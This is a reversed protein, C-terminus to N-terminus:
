ATKVLPGFSVIAGDAETAHVFVGVHTPTMTKSIDAEGFAHYSVGDPSFLAQFTNSASYILKIYLPWLPAMPIMVDDLVWPATNMNTLTGHRGVLVTNTVNTGTEGAQISAGVCNSAAITGDTFIIGARVSVQAATHGLIGYIPVTWAHGTSFSQAILLCNADEATMGAAVVSVLNNDETWTTTGTIDVETFSAKDNGDWYFATSTTTGTLDTAWGPASTSSPTAWEVATAGSNVRLVQNATGVALRTPTGSAGGYIVDGATTMPNNMLPVDAM